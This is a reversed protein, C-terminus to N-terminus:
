DPGHGRGRGNVGGVERARSAAAGTRRALNTIRTKTAQKKSNKNLGDLTTATTRKVSKKNDKAILKKKPKKGTKTKKDKAPPKDPASGAETQMAVGEVPEARLTDDGHKTPKNPTSNNEELRECRAANEPSESQLKNDNAVESKSQQLQHELAACKAELEEQKSADALFKAHLAEQKAVREDSQQLQKELNVCKAELDERLTADELLKARLEEQEADRKDSQQLQQELAACKAELEKQVDLQTRLQMPLTTHEEMSDTKDHNQAKCVDTQGHATTSDYLQTQECMAASSLGERAVSKENTNRVEEHDLSTYAARRPDAPGILVKGHAEASKRKLKPSAPRKTAKSAAIEISLAKERLAAAVAPDGAQIHAIAINEDCQLTDPHSPGLIRERIARALLFHRFAGSDDGIELCTAGM